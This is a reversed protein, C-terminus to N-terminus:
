GVESITTAELFSIFCGFYSDISLLMYAPAYKKICDELGTHHTGKYPDLHLIYPDGVPVGSPGADLVAQSPSEKGESHLSVPVCPCPMACINVGQHFSSNLRSNIAFDNSRDKGDADCM